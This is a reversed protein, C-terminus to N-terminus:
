EKYAVYVLYPPEGEVSEGDYEKEREVQENKIQCAGDKCSIILRGEMEEVKRKAQEDTLGHGVVYIIVMRNMKLPAYKEDWRQRLGNLSGRGNEAPHATTRGVWFERQGNKTEEM